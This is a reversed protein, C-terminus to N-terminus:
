GRTHSITDHLHCQDNTYHLKVQGMEDMYVKTIGTNGILFPRNWQHWADGAIFYMLLISIFGGHSVCAIHDDQHEHHLYHVFSRCRETLMDFTETGPIGSTVVSKHALEPYDAELEARTKGELPGLFVERLLMDEKVPISGAIKAATDAARTLDSSYVADLNVEAFARGLKEAQLMGAESLPYDTQGQIIKQVNGESEGHRILYM